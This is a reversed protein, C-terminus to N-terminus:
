ASRVFGIGNNVYLIDITNSNTNSYFLNSTKLLPFLVLGRSILCGRSHLKKGTKNDDLWRWLCSYIQDEISRVGARM